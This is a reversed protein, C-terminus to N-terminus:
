QAVIRVKTVVGTRGLPSTIDVSWDAAAPALPDLTLVAPAADQQAALGANEVVAFGVGLVVVLARALINGSRMMSEEPDFRRTSIQRARWETLGPPLAM